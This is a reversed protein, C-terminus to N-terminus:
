ASVQPKQRRVALELAKGFAFVLHHDVGRQAVSREGIALAHKGPSRRPRTGSRSTVRGDMARWRCGTPCRPRSARERADQRATAGSCRGSGTRAPSWRSSRRATACDLVLDAPDLMAQDSAQTPSRPLEVILAAPAAAGIDVPGDFMDQAAPGRGELDPVERRVAVVLPLVARRAEIKGTPAEAARRMAFVRLVMSRRCDRSRTPARMKGIREARQEFRDIEQLAIDCEAIKAGDTLRLQPPPSQERRCALARLHREQPHEIQGVAVAAKEINGLARPKGEALKTAGRFDQDLM